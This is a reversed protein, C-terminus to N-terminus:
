FENRHALAEKSDQSWFRALVGKLQGYEDKDLCFLIISFVYVASVVAAAVLLEFITSPPVVRNLGWGVVGAILSPVIGRWVAEKFWPGFKLGALYLSYKWAVFLSWIVVAVLTGAASGVAGMRLHHVFYITVALNCISSAIVILSLGRVRNMAYGVQGILHIPMEIWYRVLLLLMVFPVAKYVELKSGLYLAWLQQRFAILPTAVLLTAWLSYRGGRIFLSRLSAPGGTTHVAVMHPLLPEQMKSLVSDIQNDTLSALQFTNVDIPTAYWNLILMDSSKRIMAGISGMMNWFGFSLLNPLLAWRICDRRFRLTPLARVSLVTTVILISVDAVVSAVVVWLVRPGVGFLLVFLLGVRIITQIITLSNLVVFKQRVFLGVGFPILVLRLSLSGLLLVVMLRAEYLNQPAIKLISDLYITTIVTLLASVVAAALLLPFLTSTIEIVRQDDERAHAEMTDRFLGSTLVVLLPPAFVLLATVVPYLSYEEPSIRKILYQYLWIQVFINVIREALGSASNAIFRRKNSM